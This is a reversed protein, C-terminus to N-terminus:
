SKTFSFGWQAKKMKNSARNLVPLLFFKGVTGTCDFSNKTSLHKFKARKFIEDNEVDANKDVNKFIDSSM